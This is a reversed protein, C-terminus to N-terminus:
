RHLLVMSAAYCEGKITVRVLNQQHQTHDQSCNTMNTQIQPVRVVPMSLITFYYFFLRMKGKKITSQCKNHPSYATNNSVQAPLITDSSVPVTRMWNNGGKKSQATHQHLSTRNSDIFPPKGRCTSELLLIMHARQISGPRLFKQLVRHIDVSTNRVIEIRDTNLAM